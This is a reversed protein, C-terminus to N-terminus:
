YFLIMHKEKNFDYTGVAEGWRVPIIRRLGNGAACAGLFEAVLNEGKWKNEYKINKKWKGTARSSAIGACNVAAM